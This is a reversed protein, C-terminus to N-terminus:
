FKRVKVEFVQELQKSMRIEANFEEILCKIISDTKILM